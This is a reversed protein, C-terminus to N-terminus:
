SICFISQIVQYAFQSPLEILHIKESNNLMKSFKKIINKLKNQM